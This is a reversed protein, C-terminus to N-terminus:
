RTGILRCKPHRIEIGHALDFTEHVFVLDVDYVAVAGLAAGICPERAALRKADVGRMAPAQMEGCYGETPKANDSSRKRARRVCSKRNSLSNAAKRWFIAAGSRRGADNMIAHPRRTPADGRVAIGCVDHEDLVGGGSPRRNKISASDRSRALSRMSLAIGKAVPRVHAAIAGLDFPASKAACEARRRFVRARAKL